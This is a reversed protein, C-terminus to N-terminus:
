CPRQLRAESSSSSSSSHPGGPPQLLGDDLLGQPPRHHAVQAAARPAAAARLVQPAPAGARCPEGQGRAAGGGGRGGPWVVPPPRSWAWAQAHRALRCPGLRPAAAACWNGLTAAEWSKKLWASPIRANFLADFAEILPGSLAITGAIALRMNRLTGATLAIVVNLRDVEQRLHVHLPQTPGGPMKRLRQVMDERDFLAPV